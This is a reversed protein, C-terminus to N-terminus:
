IQTQELGMNYYNTSYTSLIKWIETTEITTGLVCNLFDIAKFRM